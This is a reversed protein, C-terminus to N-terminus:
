ARWDGVPGGFRKYLEEIDDRYMRELFERLRAPMGPDAPAPSDEVVGEQAFGRDLRPLIVKNVPFDSLDVDASVGLFRFVDVILEEPRDKVHDFFGVFLRDAGFVSRWRDIVGLYDGRKVSSKSQFHAIFEAESVEDLGRGTRVSLNMRAQSYAREIPNRMLFILKVEPAVKGIFHVRDDSLASYAPTIEGKVKGAGPAFERAYSALSRHFDQNFYHMEKRPLFLEPHPRLNEYLWTTGAKQAGIGLFDPMSLARASLLGMSYLRKEVLSLAKQPLRALRSAHDTM